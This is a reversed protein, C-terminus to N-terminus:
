WFDVAFGVFAQSALRNCAFRSINTCTERTVTHPRRGARKDQKKLLLAFTGTLSRGLPKAAPFAAFRCAQQPLLLCIRRLCCPNLQIIRIQQRQLSFRPKCFRSLERFSVTKNKESRRFSGFTAWLTAVRQVGPVTWFEVSYNKRSMELM